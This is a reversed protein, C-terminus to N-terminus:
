ASQGGRQRRRWRGCGARCLSARRAAASRAEWGDPAARARRAGEIYRQLERLRRAEKVDVGTFSRRWTYTTERSIGHKKAVAAVSTAEAERLRRAASRDDDTMVVERSAKKKKKRKYAEGLVDKSSKGGSSTGSRYLAM